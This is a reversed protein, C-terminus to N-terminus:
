NKKKKLFFENWNNFDRTLKLGVGQKYPLETRTFDNTNTRNFVFMHLRPNIKYGVLVDGVLNTTTANETALTRSEGGYGLTTEFYLRDWEKRIDVDFQETTLATEGQYGFNVDVVKVVNSVMNGLTSTMLNLGGSAANDVVSSSSTTNSFQGTLLLSLAQTLVERENSRDIYVSVEEEVSKDANPFRLDFSVHPESMTGSLVIVDEVNVTRGATEVTSGMLSALNAHVLHSAKIDFRINNIDGPLIITSGQDITFNTAIFSFLELSLSGSSLEYSGTIYPQTSGALNILVNGSGTAVLNPAIQQFTMPLQLRLDPTIELEISLFLPIKTNRQNAGLGVNKQLTGRPSVFTIFNSEAVQKRDDVPVTLQSGRNTHASINVDMRNADGKVNGALRVMVMGSPADLRDSINFLMFNDSNIALNMGINSSKEYLVAGNILLRNGQPDRVTFDHLRVQHNELHLTDSFRYTVGTAAIGLLGDKVIADGKIRPQHLTGDFRIHGLLEGEFRSAFSKLLPTAMELPFHDFDCDIALVPEAEMEISGIATLPSFTGSERYTRTDVKLNIRDEDANWDSRLTLQGLDYDNVQCQDVDLDATLYPTSAFGRITATGNMLGDIDYGSGSLWQRSLWALSLNNFTLQVYDDVKHEISVAASISQENDSAVISPLNLGTHDIRLDNGCVLEWENEAIIFSGHTLRLRNQTTDSQMDVKLSLEKMNGHDGSEIRIESLSSEADVLARVDELLAPGGICIRETSISVAYRDGRNRSSLNVRRLSLSGFAISDSNVVLRLGENANYTGNITTNPAIGMGIGFTNLQHYDGKWRSDFSFNAKGVGIDNVTEHWPSFYAPCYQACFNQFVKPIDAYSIHGRASFSLWDSALALNKSYEGTNHASLHMNNLSATDTGIALMTKSLTLDGSMQEIDAGTANLRIHTSIDILSDSKIFRLRSLSLHDIIADAMYKPMEADRTMSASLSMAILEDGMDLDLAVKDNTLAAKFTSPKIPIGRLVTSYLEGDIHGVLNSYSTGHCEAKARVGTHSVWENPWLSAIKLGSSNINATARYNGHQDPHVTIDAKLPGVGTLLAITADCQSMTGHLAIQGKIDQLPKLIQPPTISVKEPLAIRMADNYSTQLNSIDIDFNTNEIDPLGKVSGAFHLALMDDIRVDFDDIQLDAVPGEAHGEIYVKDKVGWMIPVWYGVDRLDAVSGPKLTLTHSVVDCYPDMNEWGDYKMSADLLLHTGDTTLEMNTAMIGFPSVKADCSLDKLRFGSQERTSFRVIRCDIWSENVRIDKIYARTDYYHQHQYCVGHEPIPQQKGQYLDMRYEVGNLYLKKCRVVFRKNSKKPSKGGNFYDIIYKLNVGGTDVSILHFYADNITLRNLDLGEDDIPNGRFGVSMKGCRFITDGDPHVLLIGYLDVGYFPNIRLGGIDVKGGWEKTFHSSAISGAINQVVNSFCLAVLLYVAVFICCLSTVVIKVTKKM